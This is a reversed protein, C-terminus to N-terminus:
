QPVHPRLCMDHSAYGAKQKAVALASVKYQVQLPIVHQASTSTCEDACAIEPCPIAQRGNACMCVTHQSHAKRYM